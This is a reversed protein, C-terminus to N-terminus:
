GAADVAGHQPTFQETKPDVHFYCCGVKGAGMERVKASLVKTTTGGKEREIILGNDCKNYWHMSGEIDALTVPGSGAVRAKTPHAVLNVSVSYTRAFYKLMKLCDAIYETMTQDKRKAWELENWPDILLFDVGNNEIAAVAQKLVWDLTLAPADYADVMASQVFCYDRSFKEFGSRDGWIRQLKDRLHAENEPVFLFSKARHKRTLNCLLNLMFTSKGHGPLGTVVTFQGPYPRYIQDLEWWGTSIAIKEVSERQPLDILAHLGPQNHQIRGPFPVVTDPPIEM